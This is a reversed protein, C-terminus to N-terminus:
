CSWKQLVPLRSPFDCLRGIMAFSLLRLKASSAADIIIRLNSAQVEDGGARVNFEGVSQRRQEAHILRAPHCPTSLLSHAM